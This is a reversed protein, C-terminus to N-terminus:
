NSNSLEKTIKEIDMGALKMLDAIQQAEPLRMEVAAVLASVLLEAGKEVQQGSAFYMQALNVQAVLLSRRDGLASYVPLVQEECLTIAQQHEGRDRQDGAAEQDGGTQM